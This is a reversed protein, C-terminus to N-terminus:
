RPGALSDLPRPLDTPQYVRVGPISAFDRDSTALIDAQARQLVALSLSDNTLLGHTKRIAGSASLPKM